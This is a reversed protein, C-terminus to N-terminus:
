VKNCICPCFSFLVLYLSYASLSRIEQMLGGVADVRFDIGLSKPRADLKLSYSTVWAWRWQLM